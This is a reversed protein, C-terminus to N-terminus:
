KEVAERKLESALKGLAVFAFGGADDQTIGTEHATKSYWGGAFERVIEASQRCYL